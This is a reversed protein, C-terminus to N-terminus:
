KQQVAIVNRVTRQTVCSIIPLYVLFVVAPVLGIAIGLGIITAVTFREDVVKVAFTLQQNTTSWQADIKAGYQNMTETLLKVQEQLGSMAVSLDEIAPVAREVAISTFSFILTFFVCVLSRM